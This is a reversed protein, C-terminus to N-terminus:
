FFFFFFNRIWGCFCHSLIYNLGTFAPQMLFMWLAAAFTGLASSQAMDSDHLFARCSFMEKLVFGFLYVLLSGTLLPSLHAEGHKERLRSYKIWKALEKTDDIIFNGASAFSSSISKGFSFCLEIVQYSLISEEFIQKCVMFNNPLASMLEFLFLFFSM